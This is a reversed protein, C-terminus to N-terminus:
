GGGAAAGHWVGVEDFAAAPAAFPGCPDRYTTTLSRCSKKATQNKKKSPVQSNSKSRRHIWLGTKIGTPPLTSNPGLAETDM